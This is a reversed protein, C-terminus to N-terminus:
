ARIPQDIESASQTQIAGEVDEGRQRRRRGEDFTKASKGVGSAYGLFIKLYGRKRRDEELQLEQLIHEPDRRHEM